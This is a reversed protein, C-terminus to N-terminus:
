KKQCKEKILIWDKEGAASKISINKYFNKIYRSIKYPIKVREKNKDAYRINPSHYIFLCKIPKKKQPENLFSTLNVVYGDEDSSYFISHVLSGNM